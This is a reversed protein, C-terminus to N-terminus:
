SDYTFEFPVDSCSRDSSILEPHESLGSQTSSMPLHPTHLQEKSLDEENWNNIMCVFVSVFMSCPTATFSGFRSQATFDSNWSLYPQM